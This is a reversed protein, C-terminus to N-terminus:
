CEKLCCALEPLLSVSSGPLWLWRASCVEPSFQVSAPNIASPPSIRSPFQEVVADGLCMPWCELLEEMVSMFGLELLKEVGGNADGAELSPPAGLTLSEPFGKTWPM